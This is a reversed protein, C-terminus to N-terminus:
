FAARGRVGWARASLRLTGDREFPLRERLARRLRQRAEHDLAACYTPAPGTGLEFPEWYDDFGAFVTEVELPVAEVDAWGAELALATLDEPTCFPFRAAEGLPVAAPDLAGAVEWFLRMFEVGRGPYDWVYFAVTGGGRTARAMERLARPRDPVFNLMLGSVALDRSGTEVRLDQADGVSFRARPDPVNERAREVFSASVDVGLLSRPAALRVVTGSLAGTGCGVDLWDLGRPPALWGLFRPAVERSWRGMYRDYNEGSRWPDQGMPYTM